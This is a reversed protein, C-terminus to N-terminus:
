PPSLFIDTMEFCVCSGSIAGGIWLFVGIYASITQLFM